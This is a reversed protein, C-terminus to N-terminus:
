LCYLHNELYQAIRHNEEMAIRIQKNKAKKYEYHANKPTDFLGLYSRKGCINIQAVFKGSCKHFNVGIPHEGRSAGSDILLSNISHPIFLCTSPSYTKNGKVKIDKDLECGLVYNDKFWKAYNSFTLWEDCVRCGKYTPCKSLEKVSYCRLLMHKWSEYAPCKLHNGSSKTQTMYWADNKGIGCVLRRLSLSRNTAKVKKFESM